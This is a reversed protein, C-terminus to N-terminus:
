DERLIASLLLLLSAFDYHNIPTMMAEQPLNEFAKSMRELEAVLELRTPKSKQSETDPQSPSLLPNGQDDVKVANDKHKKVHVLDNYGDLIVEGCGCGVNKRTQSELIEGCLKCKM